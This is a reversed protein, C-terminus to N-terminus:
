RQAGKGVFGIADVMILALVIAGYAPFVFQKITEERVYSLIIAGTFCVLITLAQKLAWPSSSGGAASYRTIIGIGSIGAILFILRWPLKALPQPIIASSIMGDADAARPSKIAQAEAGILLGAMVAALAGVPLVRSTFTSM